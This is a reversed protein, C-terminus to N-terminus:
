WKCVHVCYRVRALKGRNGSLAVVDFGTRRGGSRVEETYFGQIPVGMDHLRKCAQRVVTTKGVGSLLLDHQCSNNPLHIFFLHHLNLYQRTNQSTM